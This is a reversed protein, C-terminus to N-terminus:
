WVVVQNWSNIADTNYFSASVGINFNETWVAFNICIIGFCQFTISHEQKYAVPNVCTWPIAKHRIPQRPWRWDRSLSRPWLIQDAMASFVKNYAFKVASNNGILTKGQPFLSIKCMKTCFLSSILIKWRYGLVSACSALVRTQGM